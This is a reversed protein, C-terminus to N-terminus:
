FDFQQVFDLKQEFILIKAGSESTRILGQNECVGQNLLEELRAPPLMFSPPVIKQVIAMVMANSKNGQKNAYFKNMLLHTDEMLLTAYYKRRNAFMEIKPYDVQLLRLAM